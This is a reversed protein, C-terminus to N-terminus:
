VVELCRDCRHIYGGYIGQGHWYGGCEKLHKKTGWERDPSCWCDKGVDHETMDIQFKVTETAKLEAMRQNMVVGLEVGSEPQQTLRLIEDYDLAYLERAQAYFAETAENLADQAQQVTRNVIKMERAQKDAAMKMGNLMKRQATKIAQLYERQIEAERERLTDTAEEMEAQAARRAENVRERRRDIEDTQSVLWDNFEDTQSQIENM